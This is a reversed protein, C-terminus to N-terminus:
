KSKKNFSELSKYFNILEEDSVEMKRDKIQKYKAFINEIQEIPVESKKSLLVIFKSETKEQIHYRSRVSKVFLDMKQIGLKQNNKQAFYLEGITQIFELTSNTKAFKVPIERQKRWLNFLLFLFVAGWLIYFAWQFARQQLIYSFPSEKSNGDFDSTISWLKSNRDWYIPGDPLESLVQETYERGDPRILHLNTFFLPSSHLLVEGKGLKFRIFNAQNERFTGLTELRLSKDCFDESFFQWFFKEKEGNYKYHFKYPKSIRSTSDTLHVSINKKYYQTNYYQEFYCDNHIEELFTYPMEELAIFVTNGKRAFNKIAIVDDMEYNCHNGIVFYTAPSVNSRDNLFKRVNQEDILELRDDTYSELLDYLIKTGYPQDNNYVYNQGWSYKAIYRRNNLYIALIIFGFVLLAAIGIKTNKNM